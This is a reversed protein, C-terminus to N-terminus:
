RIALLAVNEVHQTHPFMDVPQCKVLNYKEKLLFLDRAQTAPNCSIYVIKQPQIALIAKVVKEHMGSRPPDTIVVDPIGNASVFEPTLVKESEGAFFLTNMINNLKSNERADQVAAVFSEIGIVYSVTGAIYNAMSGIGTYLDYVTEDGRFGAFEAATKYLVQGQFSNTQFFSGPGIRLSIEKGTGFAPFSEILYPQGKYLHFNLDTITDNKKPNIVYYCSTIGPFKGLLHDLMRTIQETEGANFVMIVMLDGSSSNRIILNRLFGQWTRVDYFSLHNDQAYKKAELRIANSPEEQLYCNNIDLIKDFLLPLHFGLANMEQGALSNRDEETLWRRNSFTFELKNRYYKTRASPLIPLILLDEIKAIRSINDEVQKQKYKLQDEYKMNQWRCGGCTGFHECFTTERKESYTHIKIARGELYSRKKRTIRIDVIDGPVVFPVFIVLNGVRAVAKGEPGADIIEVNEILDNMM